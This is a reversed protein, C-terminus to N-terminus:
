LYKVKVGKTETNKNKTNITKSRKHSKLGKRYERNILKQLIGTIKQVLTKIFSNKDKFSSLEIHSRRLSGM